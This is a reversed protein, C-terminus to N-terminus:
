RLPINLFYREDTIGVGCGRLINLYYRLIVQIVSSPTYTMRDSSMEVAYIM